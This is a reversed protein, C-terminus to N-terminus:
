HVLLTYGDANSKAAIGVGITGGAGPRNEVVITHGLQTGLRETVIRAVADTASGATFPVVVRLTKNPWGPAPDTSQAHVSGTAALLTASMAFHTLAKNM